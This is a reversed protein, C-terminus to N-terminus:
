AGSSKQIEGLREIVFNRLRPDKILRTWRRAKPFSFSPPFHLEPFYKFQNGKRGSVYLCDLLAKEPAAVLFDSTGKYWDFGFFFDPAIRHISFTGVATKMVRTHAVSACTIIQPVQEIIGHLHLASIFSLYTRHGAPLYPIIRFPGIPGTQQEAWVGRSIKVIIGHKRLNNLGQVVGSLSKGSVAYVERTTFAAQKLMKVYKLIPERSM